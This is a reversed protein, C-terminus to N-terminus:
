IDNKYDNILNMIKDIKNVIYKLKNIDPLLIKDAMFNLEEQTPNGFKMSQSITFLDDIINQINNKM